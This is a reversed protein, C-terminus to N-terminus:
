ELALHGVVANFGEIGVKALVAEPAVCALEALPEFALVDGEQGCGGSSFLEGVAQKNFLRSRKTLAPDGRSGAERGQQNWRPTRERLRARKSVIDGRAGFRFKSGQLRSLYFADKCRLM